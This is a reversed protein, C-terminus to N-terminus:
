QFLRMNESKPGELYNRRVSSIDNVWDALNETGFYETRGDNLVIDLRPVIGLPRSVVADSLDHIPISVQHETGDTPYGEFFLRHDTLYLCGAIGDWDARGQRVLLEDTLVPASELVRNERYRFVVAMSFGFIFGAVLGTWVASSLGKESGFYLGWFIGFPIGTTLFTRLFSKM